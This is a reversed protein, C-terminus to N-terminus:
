RKTLRERQAKGLIGRKVMKTQVQRFYNKEDVACGLDEIKITTETGEVATYEKESVKEARVVRAYTHPALVVPLKDVMWM